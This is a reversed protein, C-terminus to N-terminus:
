ATLSAGSSPQAGDILLRPVQKLRRAERLTSFRVPERRSLAYPVRGALELAIRGAGAWDRSGRAATWRLHRGFGLLIAPPVCWSPYRMLATLVFNRLILRRIGRWDRGRFDQHHIVSFEPDYIISWGADLIRLSIEVEEWYYRFSPEFCGVQNLVSRRILAGYSFFQAVLCARDANAPQEFIAAGGPAVQRFAVAGCEPHNELVAIAREMTDRQPLEVDDDLFAIIDGQAARIGSNRSECAGRSRDNRLVKINAGLKGLPSESGDDIVIVEMLPYTQSKLSTVARRLSDPRDRTPIVVSLMPVPTAAPAIANEANNM